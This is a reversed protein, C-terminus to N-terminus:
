GIARCILITKLQKTVIEMYDSDEKFIMIKSNKRRENKVEKFGPVISHERNGRQLNVLLLYKGKFNNGENFTKDKHVRNGNSKNIVTEVHRSPVWQIKHCFLKSKFLTTSINIFNLQM